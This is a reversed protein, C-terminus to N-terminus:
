GGAVRVYSPNVFSRENEPLMDPLEKAKRGIAEAAPEVNRRGVEVPAHARPNGGGIGRPPQMGTAPPATGPASMDVLEPYFFMM